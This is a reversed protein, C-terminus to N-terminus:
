IWRVKHDCVEVVYVVTRKNPGLTKVVDSVYWVEDRERQEAAFREADERTSKQVRWGM